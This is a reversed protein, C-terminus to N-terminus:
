GRLKPGPEPILTFKYLSRRLFGPFSDYTISLNMTRIPAVPAGIRGNDVRAM